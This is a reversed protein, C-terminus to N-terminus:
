DGQTRTNINIDIYSESNHTEKYISIAICNMSCRLKLQANLQKMELM